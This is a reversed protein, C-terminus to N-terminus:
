TPESAHYADLYAVLQEMGALYGALVPGVDATKVPTEGRAHRLVRVFPAADFGVRRAVAEVLATNDVPPKEGHLRLFARFVIMIASKSANLLEVHRQGDNGAALVGQRLKILKGMAEQELQLRLDARDVQIGEFPPDGYLVRHRELIDAYEM